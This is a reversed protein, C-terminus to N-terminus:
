CSEKMGPSTSAGLQFYSRLFAISCVLMEIDPFLIILMVFIVSMIFEKYLLCLSQYLLCHGRKFTATRFSTFCPKQSPKATGIETCSNHM